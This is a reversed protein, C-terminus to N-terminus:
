LDGIKEFVIHRKRSGWYLKYLYVLETCLMHCYFLFYRQIETEEIHNMETQHRFMYMKLCYIAKKMWRVLHYVGPLCFKIGYSPICELFNIILKLFEKYDHSSTHLVICLYMIIMTVNKFLQKFYKSRM